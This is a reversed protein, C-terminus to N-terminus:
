TASPATQAVPAAARPLVLTFRSGQNPLSEVEISGGHEVVIEEVLALGIGTGAEGCEVAKRTRYFKQFIRRVEQEDMGYGHDRVSLRVQEGAREVELIIETGGPSYKIANTILNYCAYELFERDGLVAQDNRFNNSIRIQKRDALPRAREVCTSFVEAASVPDRKLELEGASLREVSLFMEVIRALRRSERHILGAIEKRKEDSLAYRGMLESSGQIATLPTRMEHTVYHVAQQYRARQAEAVRLRSRTLLYHRSGLGLFCCWATAAPPSIPMVRNDLFLLGPALHAVALLAFGLVFARAGALFEFCLLMGAALGVAFALTVLNSVSVLFDGRALTEYLNAHIEVGPMAAGYSLPTMLRDPGGQVTVGIFVARDRLRSALASQEILEKMSIRELSGKPLYRIRLARQEGRSAPIARGGVELSKETEVIHGSGSALRFTELALAWRRVSHGGAGAVKELLVQRSVGDLDPDAHVHGLAAHRSFEARPEEWDIQGTRPNEVLTTALVLNPTTELARSLRQDLAPDDRDALQIDVAVARPGTIAIVELATALAPRLRAMNGYARLTEEDMAVLVASGPRAAPPRLRLLFDYALPDLQQQGIASWAALLGAALCLGAIVISQGWGKWAPGRM